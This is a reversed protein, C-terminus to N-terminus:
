TPSIIVKNQKNARRNAQRQKAQQRAVDTGLRRETDLFERTAAGFHYFRDTHELGRLEPAHRWTLNIRFADTKILDAEEQKLLNKKEANALAKAHVSEVTAPCTGAHMPAKVAHMIHRAPGGFLIADGSDLRIITEPAADSHKLAFDAACGISLSVVAALSQGDIPGDDRHFGLGRKLDTYYLLLAHTRSSDDSERLHPEVGAAEAVLDGCLKGLSLDFRDISDYIRGRRQRRANLKGDVVFGDEGFGVALVHQAIEAQRAEDICGKILVVGPMVVVTREKHRRRRRQEFVYVVVLLCFSFTGVVVLLMM